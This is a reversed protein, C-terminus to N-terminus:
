SKSGVVLGDVAICGSALVIVPNIDVEVLEDRLAVVMSSFRALLDCFADVDAPAKGRVGDLVQRFKLKDVLRRAYAADFPPLGFVVDKTVEALTGGFGTMVVPGFQPDNTAGVIMEVGPPAMETVLARPGLRSSLDQYAGLLAAKDAINLLVGGQDSKHAIGAVATKLVLPYEMKSAAMELQEENEVIESRSTEIGFARFMELAMAEDFSDTTKVEDQWRRVVAASDGGVEIAPRELYDRYDMLGRVGKLFPVVGDLVPFGRHTTEVVRDDKGTGQRSSALAVPKGTREHASEMYDIYSGYIFGDPARDHILGGMAVGPDEMMIALCDTMLQGADPGGRSWADLPNIAPLEPPLVRELKEVTDPQLETLPVGASAALDVILQREGGSDHLTVLGGPGIPNLEAFLIMATAMEDMDEVRHVGYRDFLAEYTADDGAMAGSHSVALAASKKTRGVKLAVVPIQNDTAKRLAARFGDPNRATEIFLGVVKTEPLDLVFDMYEDMSVSLENGTSVAFNIRVREDCDIIGCMGSGSHCILSVNGEATHHRSDFGCGWVKDRVNYFGMGNAGCVLMGSKDIKDQVRARLDPTTDDDLYLSSMIVAAPIGCALAEDLSAELRHDGVAFMVMDPTEPLSSLDPYCRLGRLTEYGPNVPYITGEFGGRELNELSWEGMSDERASAGVVAVSKPRLLPDLRHTM